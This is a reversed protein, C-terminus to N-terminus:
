QNRPALIDSGLNTLIIRDSFRTAICSMFCVLINGKWIISIHFSSEDTPYKFFNITIDSRQPFHFWENAAFTNKYNEKEAEIKLVSLKRINFTSINPIQSM